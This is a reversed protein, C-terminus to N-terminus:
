CCHTTRRTKNWTVNALLRKLPRHLVSSTYCVFSTEKHLCLAISESPTPWQQSKVIIAQEELHFCYVIYTYQHQLKSTIDLINLLKCNLFSHGGFRSYTSPIKFCFCWCWRKKNPQVLTWNSYLSSCSCVRKLYRVICMSKWPTMKKLKYVV